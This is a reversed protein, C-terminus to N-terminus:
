VIGELVTIERNLRQLENLILVPLEHYSVTYPQGEQDYSVLMSMIEAVEEAILGLKRLKSNKYNFTVPRLQLIPRSDNNLDKVNEKFRASSSAIGINGSNDVYMAQNTGGVAKAYVKASVITGAGKPTLTISINSDSGAASITTGSLTIKAAAVNTDLTTGYLTTATLSTLGTPTASWAPKTGGTLINTSAASITGVQDASDCIALGCTAGVSIGYIGHIFAANIQGNGTGTGAGIHMKNTEAAVGQALAGICINNVETNNGFAYGARHGLLCHYNSNGNSQGATENGCCTVTLGRGSTIAGYSKYGIFTSYQTNGGSQGGAYAGIALNYTINYNTTGYLAQYGIATNGVSNLRYGAKDGIMVDGVGNFSASSNQSLAIAECGIYVNSNMGGGSSYHATGLVGKGIAVVRTDSSAAGGSVSQFSTYGFITNKVANTTNFSTNATFGLLTNSTGRTWVFRYSDTKNPGISLFQTSALTLKGAGLVLNGTSITGGITETFPASSFNLCNNLAM